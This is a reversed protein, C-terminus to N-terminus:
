SNRTRANGKDDDHTQYKNYKQMLKVDQFQFLFSIENVM